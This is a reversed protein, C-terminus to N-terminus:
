DSMGRGKAKPLGKPREPAQTLGEPVRSAERPEHPGRLRNQIADRGTRWRDVLDHGWQSVSKMADHLRSWLKVVHREAQQEAMEQLIQTRADVRRLGDQVLDERREAWPREYPPCGYEHSFIRYPITTRLYKSSNTRCPLYRCGAWNM